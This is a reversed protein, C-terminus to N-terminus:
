SSESVNGEIEGDVDKGGVACRLKVLKKFCYSLRVLSTSCCFRFSLVLLLSLLVCFDLFVFSLLAM